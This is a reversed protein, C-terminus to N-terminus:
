DCIFINHKGIQSKRSQELLHHPRLPCPSAGRASRNIKFFLKEDKQIKTIHRNQREAIYQKGTMLKSNWTMNNISNGCNHLLQKLLAMHGYPLSKTRLKSFSLEWKYKYFHLFHLIVIHNQCINTFFCRAM